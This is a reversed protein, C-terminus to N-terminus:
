PAQLVYMAAAPLSQRRHNGYEQDAHHWNSSSGTVSPQLTQIHSLTVAAGIRLGSEDDHDMRQMEAIRKINILARPTKLQPGELRDKMLSLLDTGGAIVRAENGWRELWSVAEQVTEADAHLFAPLEYLM